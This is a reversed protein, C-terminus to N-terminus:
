MAPIKYTLVDGDIQAWVLLSFGLLVDVIAKEVAKPDYGKNLGLFHKVRSALIGFVGVGARAGLFMGIEMFPLVWWSCWLYDSFTLYIHDMDPIRATQVCKGPCTRASLPCGRPTPGTNRSRLKRRNNFNRTSM